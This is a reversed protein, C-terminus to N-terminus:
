FQVGVYVGPMLRTHLDVHRGGVRVDEGLSTVNLLVGATVAVRASVAYDIGIGLPVVFSGYTDAVGSDDDEIDAHVFGIGGQVVLRAARRTGPLDWRFRAQLSVGLVADNGGAGAYQVLPGVSLNPLLLYDLHGSFAPEVGDPTSALFGAGAGASWRGSGSDDGEADGGGPAVLAVLLV